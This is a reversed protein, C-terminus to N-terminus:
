SEDEKRIKVDLSKEIIMIIEDLNDTDFEATLMKDSAPSTLVVHFHESLAKLVLSLPTHDFIFRHTPRGDGASHEVMHPISDGTLLYAQMGKTLTVGTDAGKASFLVRGSTVTVDISDPHSDDVTFRTGLVRVYANSTNATFPADPNSRVEFMVKGTMDVNREGNGFQEPQYTLSSHPYITVLSSDPLTYTATDSYATLRITDHSERMLFYGAIFCVAVMAAIGIAYRRWPNLRVRHTSKYANIAKRTDFAGPTYFNVVFKLYKTEKEMIINYSRFFDFVVIRNQFFNDSSSCIYVTVGM